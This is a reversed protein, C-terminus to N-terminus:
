VGILHHVLSIRCGLSCSRSPQTTGQHEKSLTSVSTPDQGEFFGPGETDSRPRTVFAANSCCPPGPGILFSNPYTAFYQTAEGGSVMFRKGSMVPKAIVLCLQLIELSELKRNGHAVRPKAWEPSGSLPLLLEPRTLGHFSSSCFKPSWDTGSWFNSVHSRYRYSGTHVHNYLITCVYWAKHTDVCICLCVKYLKLGSCSGELPISYVTYQICVYM